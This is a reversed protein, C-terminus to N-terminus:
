TPLKMALNQFDQSPFSDEQWLMQHFNMIPLASSALWVRLRNTVIPCTTLTTVYTNKLLIHLDRTAHLKLGRGQCVQFINDSMGRRCSINWVPVLLRPFFHPYRRLGEQRLGTWNYNCHNHVDAYGDFVLGNECVEETLTGNACKYFKDCYQEHPYVQLGYPEPCGAYQAAATAVLGSVVLATLMNTVLSLSGM